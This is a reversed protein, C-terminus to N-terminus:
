QVASDKIHSVDPEPYTVTERGDKGDLFNWKKTEEDFSPVYPAVLKSKVESNPVVECGVNSVMTEVQAKYFLEHPEICVLAQGLGDEKGRVNVARYKMIWDPGPLEADDISLYRTDPEGVVQKYPCLVWTLCEASATMPMALALILSTLTARLDM